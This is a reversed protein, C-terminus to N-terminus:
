ASFRSRLFSSVSSILIEGVDERFYQRMLLHPIGVAEYFRRHFTEPVTIYGHYGNAMTAITLGGMGPLFRLRQGHITFLELPLALILMPGIRIAQIAVSLSTQSPSQGALEIWDLEALLESEAWPSADNKLHVRCQEARAALQDADPYPTLPLDILRVAVDISDQTVLGANTVARLAAAALDIGIEQALLERAADGSPGDQAHNGNGFGSPNIDGCPGLLFATEVGAGAVARLGERLYYPYDPSIIRSRAQCVPHCAFNMLVAELMGSGNRIRHLYVASDVESGYSTRNVTRGPVVDSAREIIVPHLDQIAQHTASVLKNGLTDLFSLDRLHWRQLTITAPGSHTHTAALLVAQGDCGAETAIQQRLDDATATDFGLVDCSVVVARQGDDAEFALVTASLGHAVSRNLGFLGGGLVVQADPTIDIRSRGCKM